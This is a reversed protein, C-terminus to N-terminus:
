GAHAPSAPGCAAILATAEPFLKLDVAWCSVKRAHHKLFHHREDPLPVCYPQMRLAAGIAELTLAEGTGHERHWREYGAHVEERIFYAAWTARPRKVKAAPGELRRISNDGDAVVVDAFVVSERSIAESGLAEVVERWFGELEEPSAGERLRRGPSVAAPQQVGAMQALVGWGRMYQATLGSLIGATANDIRGARRDAIIAEIQALMGLVRGQVNGDAGEVQYGGTRRIAPLVEHTIWRKFERAQPKDSRLVLDYLGAENVVNVKQARAMSDIVEALCLDDPDLRSVAQTPNAIELVRCLDAAVFWPAGARDLLRVPQENFDFIKM